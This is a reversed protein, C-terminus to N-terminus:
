AVTKGTSAPSHDGVAAFHKTTKMMTLHILDIDARYGRCYGALATLIKGARMGAPAKDWEDQAEDAIAIASKLALTLAWRANVAAVIIAAKENNMGSMIYDGAADRIRSRSSNVHSPEAIWPAPYFADHETSLDSELLEALSPVHHKVVAGDAHGAAGTTPNDM